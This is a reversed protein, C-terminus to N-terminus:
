STLFDEETFNDIPESHPIDARWDEVLVQHCLYLPTRYVSGARWGEVAARQRDVESALDCLYEQQDFTLGDVVAAAAGTTPKHNWRLSFPGRGNCAFRFYVLLTKCAHFYAKSLSAAGTSSPSILMPSSTLEAPKIIYTFYFLHSAKLGHRSTYDLVDTFVFEFNNMIIFTALYIDFWNERKKEHIKRNLEKLIRKGLPDLFTRIALDDIQTDMIPTVPIIGNYPCTAEYPPEFGPLTGYCIRWPKEIFRTAVWFTLCDSVLSSTSVELYRFAAEFTKRLIPNADGLLYNIYEAKQGAVADRMNRGAGEVDCIYFPPMEMVRERSTSDRWRWSTTDGPQPNFRRIKVPIEIGQDQTIFVDLIELGQLDSQTRYSRSFEEQVLTWNELRDNLTSGRRHLNLDLISVRICPAKLYRHHLVSCRDCPMFMNKSVTCKLKQGRCRGCAGVARTAATASRNGAHSHSRIREDKGFVQFAGQLFGSADRKVHSRPNEDRLLANLRYAHCRNTERKTKMKPGKHRYPVIKLDNPRQGEHASDASLSRLESGESLLLLPDCSILLTNPPAYHIVHSSRSTQVESQPHRNVDIDLSDDGSEEPVHPSNSGFYSM